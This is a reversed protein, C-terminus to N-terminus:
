CLKKLDLFYIRDKTSGSHELQLTNLLKVTISCSPLLLFERMISNTIKPGFLLYYDKLAQLHATKSYKSCAKCFWSAKVRIMPINSCNPCQVGKLIDSENIQYDGLVDRGLPQHAKVLLKVLKRLEQENLVPNLHKQHFSHIRQQIDSPRIVKDILISRHQPKPPLIRTFSNSIVVNTEIPISPYKKKMIWSALQYRHRQVQQIPDPYTKEIEIGNEIYRQIMQHFDLDFELTGKNNKVELLSILYISLIAEDIQFFIDKYPLRLDRLICFKNEDLFKYYYNLSQQGRYGSRFKALDVQIQQRSPHSQHTRRLAAELKDIILPKELEKGKM